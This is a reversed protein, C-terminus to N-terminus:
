QRRATIKQEVQQIYAATEQAGQLKQFSNVLAPHYMPDTINLHVALALASMAKQNESPGKNAPATTSAPQTLNVLGAVTSDPAQDPLTTPADDPSLRPSQLNLAVELTNAAADRKTLFPLGFRKEVTAVVSTHDFITSSDKPDTGIITGKQTYASIVLAPVRVGLQDFQFSYAINAYNTDDGTPVTQPPPQHDYFGGHEDFTIILMTDKWYNSNRLTEYVLKVLAEGKRIDNLPHMSNGGQYNNGTDYDPEIFTYEPLSGNKVDNAFNSFDEFRKTLPDVYELRLDSIGATQPMGDNYIRWDKGGDTLRKYITGNQFSFGELIQATASSDTLGGSTAAHVFFRNPWTPGPLSSYWFNFFAFEQALASLVPLQDPQFCGMVLNEDGPFTVAQTASFIFGTMPAPNSPTNAIPPLEPDTGQMPGYLQLQVDHFEHGPDFTMVFSDARSVKVPVSTPDNPNKLNSENGTLGAVRSDINRLYGVLHDFSRNELMLVVFRQITNLNGPVPQDTPM